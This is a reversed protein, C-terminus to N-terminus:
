EDSCLDEYKIFEGFCQLEAGAMFYGLAESRESDGKFAELPYCEYFKNILNAPKLEPTAPPAAYLSAGEVLDDRKMGYETWIIKSIDEDSVQAVPEGAAKRHRQLELAMERVEDSICMMPDTAYQNLREETLNNKM